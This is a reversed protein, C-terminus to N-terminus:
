TSVAYTRRNNQCKQPMKITNRLATPPICPNPTDFAPQDRYEPRVFGLLSLSSGSIVYVTGHWVICIVRAARVNEETLAASTACKEFSEACHHSSRPSNSNRCLIFGTRICNMRSLSRSLKCSSPADWAGATALGNLPSSMRSTPHPPPSRDSTRERTKRQFLLPYKCECLRARRPARVVAISADSDFIEM